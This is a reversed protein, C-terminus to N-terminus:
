NQYHLNIKGKYKFISDKLASVYIKNSNESEIYFNNITYLLTEKTDEMINDDNIIRIRLEDINNM